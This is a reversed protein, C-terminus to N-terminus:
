FLSLNFVQGHSSTRSGSGECVRSASRVPTHGSQFVAQRNGFLTFMVGVVHDLREVGVYKQLLFSLSHRYVLTRLWKIRLLQLRDM